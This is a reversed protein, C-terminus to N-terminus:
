GVRFREHLNSFYFYFPFKPGLNKEEFFWLFCKQNKKERAAEGGQVGQRPRRGWAGSAKPNLVRMSVPEQEVANLSNGAENNKVM